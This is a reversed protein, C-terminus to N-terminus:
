VKEFCTMEKQLCNFCLPIKNVSSICVPPAEAHPKNCGECQTINKFIFRSAATEILRVKQPPYFNSSLIAKYSSLIDLLAEEQAKHIKDMTKAFVILNAAYYGEDLHVDELPHNLYASLYNYFFRMLAQRSEWAKFLHQQLLKELLNSCSLKAILENQYPTTGIIINKHSSPSLPVAQQAVKLLEEIVSQSSKLFMDRVEGAKPADNADTVQKFDQIVKKVLDTSSSIQEEKEVVKTSSPSLSSPSASNAITSTTTTTSNPNDSTITTTTALDSEM